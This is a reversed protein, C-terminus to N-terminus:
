ADLRPAVAETTAFAPHDGALEGAPGLGALPSWPLYARFTRRVAEVVQTTLTPSTSPM